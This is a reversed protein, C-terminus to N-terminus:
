IEKIYEKFIDIIFDASKPTYNPSQAVVIYDFDGNFHADETTPIIIFPVEPEKQSQLIYQTKYNSPDRNKPFKMTPNHLLQITNEVPDDWIYNEEFNKLINPLYDNKDGNPNACYIIKSIWRYAIAFLLYDGISEEHTNNYCDTYRNHRPREEVPYSLLCDLIYTWSDYGLGLDAHSDIHIVEFPLTLKKLTILEQWFAISENHEKVIRGPIKKDCSLGLNTEIFIRVREKNWVCKGYEKESLREQILDPTHAIEEMFYDIDIDLFRM